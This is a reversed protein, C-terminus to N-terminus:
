GVADINYYDLLGSIDNFIAHGRTYVIYVIIMAALIFALPKSVRPKPSRDQWLVLRTGTETSEMDITAGHNQVLDLVMDSFGEVSPPLSCTLSTNGTSEVQIGSSAYTKRIYEALDNDEIMIVFFLSSLLSLYSHQV